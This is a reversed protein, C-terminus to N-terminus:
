AERFFAILAPALVEDAVGHREGPLSRHTGRPLQRAVSAAWGTLDDSSGQSDLVLTPAKVSRLITPSTAESILCDYVLTQAISAMKAWDPSSRFEAIFESPVGISEHFREVADSRRGDGVLQILEQTLPDPSTAHDDRL